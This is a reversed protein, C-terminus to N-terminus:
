DFPALASQLVSGDYKRLVRSSEKHGKHFRASNWDSCHRCPTFHIVRAYSVIPLTDDIM